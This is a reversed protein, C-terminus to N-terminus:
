EGGRLAADLVTRFREVPHAGEIVSDGVIFTPTSSIGSAASRDLDAQVLPRLVGSRACRRLAGADVGARTALSDFFGEASALPTWEAQTDFILDHMEWFKGQAGACMAAEAAPWAHKHSPLPYNLYAMRVKGTAVYERDLTAFTSDHWLKCYPCQFDSVMVLWVPAASDGRIRARDAQSRASTDGAPTLDAPGAAASRAAAPTAGEAAREDSPACAALALAVAAARGLTRPLRTSRPM